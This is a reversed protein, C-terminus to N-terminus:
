DPKPLSEVYTKIAWIANQDLTNKWSPMGRDTGNIVRTIYYEDDWESLERLDPTLGGSMARIGHCGACNGAYASEGVEVALANADGLSNGERFPNETLIEDGLEPLNGTDVPQPTVNGHAMVLGATVLLAATALTKLSFSIAM